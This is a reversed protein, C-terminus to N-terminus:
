QKDSPKSDGSGWKDNFDQPDTEAIEKEIAGRSSEADQAAQDNAAKDDKDDGM